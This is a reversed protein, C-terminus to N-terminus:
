AAEEQEVHEAYVEPHNEKLWSDLLWGILKNSSTPASSGDGAAVKDLASKVGKPLRLSLTETEM